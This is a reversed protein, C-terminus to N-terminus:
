DNLAEEMNIIEKIVLNLFEIDKRNEPKIKGMFFLSPEEVVDNKEKILDDMSVNLSNSILKIEQANIAKQGNIIKGMVQKSVGILNALDTNTMHNVKLIDSINSGVTEYFNMKM